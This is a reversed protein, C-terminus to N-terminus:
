TPLSRKGAAGSFRSLGVEAAESLEFTEGRVSPRFPDGPGLRQDRVGEGRLARLAGIPQQVLRLEGGRPELHLTRPVSQASRWPYTPVSSAYQWHSLWGLWVGKGDPRELNAWSVAAHFDKGYDM